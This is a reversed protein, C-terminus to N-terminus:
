TVRGIQAPQSALLPSVTHELSGLVSVVQNCRECVLSMILADPQSESRSLTGTCTGDHHGTCM